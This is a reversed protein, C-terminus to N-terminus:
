RTATTGDACVSPLARALAATHLVDLRKERVTALAGAALRGACSPATRAAASDAIARVLEGNIRNIERRVRSLDPREAPARSPDADWRRLLARQVVKNAEIQDRFIRVTAAPDGGLETAQRAVDELVQRERAPDDVPSDTGWKAAAVEDATLLREASREVLPLLRSPAAATRDRATAAPAAVAGTAGTVGTALLATTVAAILARRPASPFPRM